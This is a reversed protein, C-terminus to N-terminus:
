PRQTRQASGAARGGGMLGGKVHDAFQEELAEAFELSEDYCRVNNNIVQPPHLHRASLPHALWFPFLLVSETERAVM